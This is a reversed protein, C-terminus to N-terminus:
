LEWEEAGWLCMAHLLGFVSRSLAESSALPIHHPPQKPKMTKLILAGGHTTRGSLYKMPHVMLILAFEATTNDHNRPPFM